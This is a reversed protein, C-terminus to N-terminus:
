LLNFLKAHGSDNPHVGDSGLDVTPNLASFADKPTFGFEALVATVIDNYAIVNQESTGYQAYAAASMKPINIATLNGSQGANGAVYDLYFIKGQTNQTIDVTHPGDALDGFRACAPGYTAGNVTNMAGSSNLTGAFAGDILVTADANALPDNQIIYGIYVATGAVTCSAKAGAQTSNKGFANVVTNGWTGTLSMGSDRAKIKGPLLLWALCQRYFRKFFEMKVPDNKYTRHDNTGVMLMFNAQQTLDTAQIAKGVDAAQAGSAAKNTFLLGALSKEVTSAGVGVTISDGFTRM